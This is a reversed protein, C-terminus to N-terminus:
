VTVGRHHTPDPDAIHGSLQNTCIPSLAPVLGAVSPDNIVDVQCTFAGPGHVDSIAACGKVVLHLESAKGCVPLAALKTGPAPPFSGAPVKFHMRELGDGEITGGQSGGIGFPPKCATPGDSERCSTPAPPKAGPPCAMQLACVVPLLRRM